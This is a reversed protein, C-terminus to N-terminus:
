LQIQEGPEPLHLCSALGLQEFSSRLHDAGETFHAWGDFHLPVTEPAGLIRTAEAALDSTLTLPAGDALATRAAGAFLVTADFPGLRDGIARVVEISANDGSVYVSPLGSGALVFGTVEGVLLESGDPGHQAPVGTVELKGGDPRALEVSQWNGLAHVPAGLRTTAAATSLVLASGALYERGRLDLNDPHQDHSLLVGDIQGLADAAVAPGRTKTLVREGIPYVGPADFTPDTLLRIGGIELVATPGGVYWITVDIAM